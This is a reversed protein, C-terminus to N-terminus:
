YFDNNQSHSQASSGTEANTSCLGTAICQTLCIFSGLKAQRLYTNGQSTLEWSKRDWSWPYLATNQFSSLSSLNTHGNRKTSHNIQRKYVIILGVICRGGHKLQRRYNLDKLTTSSTKCEQKNLISKIQGRCFNKEIERIPNIQNEGWHCDKESVDANRQVDNQLNWHVVLQFNLVEFWNQLRDHFLLQFLRM